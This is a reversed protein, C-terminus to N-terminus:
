YDITQLIEVIQSRFYEDELQTPVTNPTVIIASLKANKKSHQNYWHKFPNAFELSLESNNLWFGFKPEVSQGQEHYQMTSMYFAVDDLLNIGNISFKKLELFKDKVITGNSDVLTDQPLKNTLRVAVKNLQQAPINLLELHHLGESLAQQKILENNFYIEVVPFDNVVHAQIDASIDVTSEHHKNKVQSLFQDFNKYFYEAHQEPLEDIDKVKDQYYQKITTSNNLLRKHVFPLVREMLPLNLSDCFKEMILLRYYREKATLSPNLPTWWISNNQYQIKNHETNLDMPTNKLIALTSGLSVAIYNGTRVYHSLNYLMDVSAMFDDWQEAWHGVLMLTMFKIDYKYFQEAEYYLAEVTTKKNMATLVKNSGSEAGISLSMCGSEALLQYFGPKTQGVPRCIWQGSWTIRKDPNQKNYIALESVWEQLSSLSGNVLSDTFSFDRINYRESLYIMEKVINKGHRFRFRQQIAYVDCFDCSRVCGKSTFMPLQPYGKGLTGQYKQLEFDDFDAFPFEQKYDSIQFKDENPILNTSLLDIIAQEGDGVIVHDVLNRQRIVEGFKQMSELTSVNCLEHIENFFGTGVGPGGLVIKVSPDQQRIKNCLYFTTFHSFFSFVSIGIYRPKLDLVTQIWRNFFEEVFPDVELTDPSLLSLQTNEFNKNAAVCEQQLKMALDICHSKYGHSKVVGSLVSIGLPPLSVDAYPVFLFVIDHLDLRKNM